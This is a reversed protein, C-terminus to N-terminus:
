RLMFFHSWLSSIKLSSPQVTSLFFAQQFVWGTTFRPRITCVCAGDLTRVYLDSSGEDNEEAVLSKKGAGAEAASDGDHNSGRVHAHRPSDLDNSTVNKGDPLTLRCLKVETSSSQELDRIITYGNM